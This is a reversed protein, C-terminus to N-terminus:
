VLAGMVKSRMDDRPAQSALPEEYERTAYDCWAEIHTEIWSEIASRIFDWDNGDFEAYPAVIEPKHLKWAVWRFAEYLGEM